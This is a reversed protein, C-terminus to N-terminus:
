TSKFGAVLADGAPETAQAAFLVAAACVPLAIVLLHFLRRTHM